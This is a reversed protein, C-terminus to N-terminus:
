SSEEASHLLLFWYLPSLSASTAWGGAPRPACPGVVVSVGLEEGDRDEEQLGLVLWPALRAVAGSQTDTCARLRSCSLPPSLVLVTKTHPEGQPEHSLVKDSFCISPSPSVCCPSDRKNRSWIRAGGEGKKFLSGGYIICLVNWGLEIKLCTRRVINRLDESGPYFSLKFKKREDVAPLLQRKVKSKRVAAAGMLPYPLATNIQLTSSLFTPKYRRDM